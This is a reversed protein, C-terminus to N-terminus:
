NKAARFEKHCSTCVAGLEKLKVNVDADNGAKAAAALENASKNLSKAYKAFEDPKEWIEPKARTKGSDSGKPFLGFIKDSTSILDKAKLEVAAYDKAEVAAKLAKADANQRKMLNQRQELDNAQAFVQSSASLALFGLLAGALTIKKVM